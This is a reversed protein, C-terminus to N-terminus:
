FAITKISAEHKGLSNQRADVTLRPFNVPLASDVVQVSSRPNIDDIAKGSPIFTISDTNPDHIGTCIM